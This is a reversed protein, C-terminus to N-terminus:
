NVSQILNEHQQFGMLTHWQKSSKTWVGPDLVRAGAIIERGEDEAGVWM